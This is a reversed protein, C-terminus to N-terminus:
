PGRWRYLRGEVVRDPLTHQSRDLLEFRDEPYREDLISAREVRAMAYVHAIGQDRLLLEVEEATAGCGIRSVRREQSPGLHPYLRENSGACRDDLLLPLEEPLSLAAENADWQQVYLTTPDRPLASSEAVPGTLTVGASAVAAGALILPVAKAWGGAARALVFPLLAFSLGLLGLLFRPEHRTLLWWPPLSVVVLLAVLALPRRRGWRWALIVGPVIAVAYIAGLGSVHNHPELLPYLPWLLEDAVYRADKDEGAGTAGLGVVPIDAPYIPNGYLELGRLWWPGAALLVGGVLLLALLGQSRRDISENRQRADRLSRGWSLLLFLGIAAMAPLLALKTAAMLGLGLAVLLTRRRDWERPPAVALAATAIVLSAALLDNNRFGSQLVVIPAILFALGAILAHASALGARRAFAAIGAVALFAFPLQSIAALPEGGILHVLGYVLEASGPHALAFGFITDLFGGLTGDRWYLISLPVHYGLEDFRHPGVQLSVGVSSILLVAAVAGLVWTLRGRLLPSPGPRSPGPLRQARPPRPTSPFTAIPARPQRTSRFIGIPTWPRWGRQAAVTVAVLGPIAALLPGAPARLLPAGLLDGTWGIWAAPITIWAYWLLGLAPLREYRRLRTAQVCAHAALLAVVLLFIASLSAAVHAIGPACLSCTTEIGLTERILRTVPPHVLVYALLVGGMLVVAIRTARDSM